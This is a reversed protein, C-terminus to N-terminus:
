TRLTLIRYYSEFGNEDAIQICLDGDPSLYKVVIKFESGKKKFFSDLSSLLIENIERETLSKKIPTPKKDADRISNIFELTDRDNKYIHNRLFSRLEKESEAYVAKEALENHGLSKLKEVIKTLLTKYEM